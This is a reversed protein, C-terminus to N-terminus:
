NIRIKEIEAKIMKSFLYEQQGERLKAIVYGKCIRLVLSPEFTEEGLKDYYKEAEEKQGRIWLCSFIYAFIVPNESEEEIQSFSTLAKEFQQQNFHIEGELYRRFVEKNTFLCGELISDKEELFEFIQSSNERYLDTIKAQAFENLSDWQLARLYAYLSEQKKQRREFDQGIEVHIQATTLESNSNNLSNENGINQVLDLRQYLALLTKDPKPSLQYSYLIKTDRNKNKEICEVLGKLYSKSWLVYEIVGLSQEKGLRKLNQAAEIRDYRLLQVIIRQKFELQKQENSIFNFILKLTNFDIYQANMEALKMLQEDKKQQQLVLPLLLNAKDKQGLWIFTEFLATVVEFQEDNLQLYSVEEGSLLSHLAYYLAKTAPEIWKNEKVEVLLCKAEQWFNNSWYLELRKLLIEQYFPSDKKIFSLIQEAEKVKGLMLYCICTISETQENKGILEELQEMNELVVHYERQQFFLDMVIMLQELKKQEVAEKMLQELKKTSGQKKTLEGIKYLLSHKSRNIQYAKLYCNVAQQENFIEEHTQALTEFMVSVQIEPKPVISSPQEMIKIGKKLDEIAAQYQQNKKRLEARLVLLDTYFPFFKTGEELVELAEFDRNQSILSWSYCKYLHPTYLCSDNVNKLAKQFYLTSEEYRRENLKEIGYMYQLYRDDPYDLLDKQLLFLREKVKTQDVRQVIRIGADQLNILREERIREFGRYQFRYDKRNRFLRLSQVPSSIRYSTSRQDIYLLYGEVNPNVLLSHLKPLQEPSIFENADLLLVWRGNAHELCLNKAESYNNSGNMTFVKAGAQQAIEVTRDRSGIDVVIIEDVFTNMNELFHVLSMEDDKTIVCLSLSIKGAM